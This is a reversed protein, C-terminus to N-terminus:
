RGLPGEFSRVWHGCRGFWAMKGQGGGGRNTQWGLGDSNVNDAWRCKLRRVTTKGGPRGIAKIFVTPNEGVM